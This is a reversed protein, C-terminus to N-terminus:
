NSKHNLPNGKRYEQAEPMECTRVKKCNKCIFDLDCKENTEEKFIMYGTVSVLGTFILGRSITKIFERRQQM